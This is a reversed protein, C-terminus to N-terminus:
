KQLHFKWKWCDNNAIYDLIERKQEWIYIQMSCSLTYLPKTITAYVVAEEAGLEEENPTFAWM